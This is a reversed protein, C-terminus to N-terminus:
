LYSRVQEAKLLEKINLQTNSLAVRMDHTVNLRKQSKRKITVLTSLAKECKYATLIPILVNPTIKEVDFCSMAKCCM